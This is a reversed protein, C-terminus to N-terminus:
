LCPKILMVAAMGGMWLGVSPPLPYECSAMVLQVLRIKESTCIEVSLSGLDCM